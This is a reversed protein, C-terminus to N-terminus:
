GREIEALMYMCEEDIEAFDRIVAAFDKIELDHKDCLRDIQGGISLTTGCADKTWIYLDSSGRLATNPEHDSVRLKIGNINYYNSMKKNNHVM